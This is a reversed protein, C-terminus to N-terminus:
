LENVVGMFLIMESWNDVIAFLFPRDVIMEFPNPPAPEIGSVAVGIETVATAETGQENVEVFAKQRVESLQHPDSFMGSFDASPTFAAKMGLAQLSPVLAMTTELKFKPLVVLGPHEDFGPMTVHQWKDGNMIKLLRAPSYGFDPFFVCMALHGGMYPLQVAQYGSGKRYMFTESMQMMPVTKEAGAVSHFPRNKTQTPDFPDIWKGKFYIANALILDTVPTIIGDAIGTIRGHTQDTAWQNITAEAATPNGFDLAQITAQFYKQTADAFSPKLATGQRYWLGNATTLILNTNDSSLLRGAARGALNVDYVSLNTTGLAQDMEARTRGVSGNAVMQL